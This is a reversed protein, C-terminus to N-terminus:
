IRALLEYFRKENDLQNFLGTKAITTMEFEDEQSGRWSMCFHKATLKIMLGQPELSKDIFKALEQTAHEQIHPRRLFWNCIRSFKSIGWINQNAIIGIYLNGIVPVFHHSCMSRVVIPGLMIVDQYNLTNEFSKIDPQQHYRGYMTEYLFMKAIRQSTEKTHPDNKVDIILTKLLQDVASQVEPLLEELDNSSIYKSINDDAFYRGNDNIIRQVIEESKSHKITMLAEKQYDNRITLREEDPNPQVEEPTNEIEEPNSPIESPIPSIEEPSPNTEDPQHM